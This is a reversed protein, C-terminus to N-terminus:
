RRYFALPTLLYKGNGVMKLDKTMGQIRANGINTRDLFALMFLITLPPLVRLDCKLILKREAAPDIQVYQAASSVSEEKHEAHELEQLETKEGLFHM